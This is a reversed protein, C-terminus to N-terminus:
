LERYYDRIPEARYNIALAPEGESSLHSSFTLEMMHGIRWGIEDGYATTEMGINRYFDNQSAYCNNIVEANIDNEAKRIKEVSSRFYRGTFTDFCLHDGGGTVVVNAVPAERIRDEAVEDRIKQEKNEGITEKVKAQYETFAKDTVSYLGMLAAQRKTHISHGSLICVITAVGSAAAPVYHPWVIKAKDMFTREDEAEIEDTDQYLDVVAKVTGRATLYSTTVVGAVAMGTMIVPSHDSIKRTAKKMM